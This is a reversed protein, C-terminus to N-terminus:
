PELTWLTADDGYGAVVWVQGGPSVGVGRAVISAVPKIFEGELRYVTGDWFLWGQGSGDLALQKFPMSWDPSDVILSWVGNRIRYLHAPGDCSAGGCLQMIVWVDGAGDIIIQRPHSFNYDLLLAEPLRYSTWMMSAPVYRWVVDRVGLWVNGTSDVEIASVCATGVPADLGHWTMGDFWRVGQGGMPGPGSYYCEGVWVEAGGDRMALRHIIDMGEGEPPPFGMDELTYLSWKKGDFARVDRAMPLWLTGSAGTYVSWPAPAWWSPESTDADTWGSDGDYTTWQGDQWAAIESTDQRMVWLRGADDVAALFDESESLVVEWSQEDWRMVAQSTIIWVTDDALARVEVDSSADPLLDALTTVHRFPGTDEASRSSPQTATTISTSVPVLTTPSTPTPTPELLLVLTSTSSPAPTTLPPQILRCAIASFVIVTACLSLKMQQSM